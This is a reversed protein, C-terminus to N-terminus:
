KLKVAESPPESQADFVLWLEGYGEGEVDLWEILAKYTPFGLVESVGDPGNVQVKWM